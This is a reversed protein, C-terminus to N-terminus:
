SLSIASIVSLELGEVSTSPVGEPLGDSPESGEALGLGDGSVDGDGDGVAPGEGEGPASGEGSGDTSALGDGVPEGDAEGPAEGPEEGVGGTHTNDAGDVNVNGFFLLGFVKATTVMVLALLVTIVAPAVPSMVETLGALVVREPFPVM